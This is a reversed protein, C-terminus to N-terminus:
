LYKMPLRFNSWYEFEHVKDQCSFIFAQQRTMDISKALRSIMALQYKNLHVSTLEAPELVYGQFKSVALKHKKGVIYNAYKLLSKAVNESYVGALRPETEYMNGSYMTFCQNTLPNKLRYYKTMYLEKKKLFELMFMHKAVLVIEGVCFPWM